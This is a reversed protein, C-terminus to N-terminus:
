NRKKKKIGIFAPSISQPKTTNMWIQKYPQMVDRLSTAFIGLMAKDPKSKKDQYPKILGTKLIESFEAELDGATPKDNKGFM